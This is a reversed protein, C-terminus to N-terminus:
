RPAETITRTGSCEFEIIGEPAAGFEFTVKEGGSPKREVSAAYVLPRGSYVGFDLDIRLFTIFSFRLVLVKSPSGEPLALEIILDEEVWAIRNLKADGLGRDFAEQAQGDM